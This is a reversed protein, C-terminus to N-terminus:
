FDHSSVLNVHWEINLESVIYPRRGGAWFFDLLAMRECDPLLVFDGFKPCTYILIYICKSWSYVYLSM